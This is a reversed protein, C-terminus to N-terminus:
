GINNKAVERNGGVTRHMGGKKHKAGVEDATLKGRGKGKEWDGM